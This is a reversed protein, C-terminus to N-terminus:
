FATRIVYNPFLERLTNLTELVLTKSFSQLWILDNYKSLIPDKFSSAPIQEILSQIEEDIGDKKEAPKILFVVKPYPRYYALVLITIREEEIYVGKKSM